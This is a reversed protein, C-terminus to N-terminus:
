DSEESEEDDSEEISEPMGDHTSDHQSYPSQATFAFGRCLLYTFWCTFLLAGRRDATPAHAGPYTPLYSTIVVLIVFCCAFEGHKGRWRAATGSGTRDLLGERLQYSVHIM